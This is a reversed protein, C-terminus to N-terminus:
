GSTRSAVFAKFIAPRFGIFFYGGIADKKETPLDSIRPETTPNGDSDLKSPVEQGVKWGKGLSVSQYRTAGLGLIFGSPFDVGFGLFFESPSSSIETGLMVMPAPGRKPDFNDAGQQNLYISLFAAGEFKTTDRNSERVHHTVNNSSDLSSDVTFGRNDGRWSGIMGLSINFHHFARDEFRVSAITSAEVNSLDASPPENRLGEPTIPKREVGITYRTSVQAMLFTQELLPEPHSAMIGEWRNVVQRSKGLNEKLAQIMAQLKEIEDKLGSRFATAEAAPDALKDQLDRDVLAALLDDCRGNLADLKTIHNGSQTKFDAVQTKIKTPWQTCSTPQEAFLSSATTNVDGNLANVVTREKNLDKRIDWFTQLLAKDEDKQADFGKGQRSTESLAVMQAGSAAQSDPAVGVISFNEQLLETSTTKVSYQFNILDAPCVRVTVVAGPRAVAVHPNDVKGSLGNVQILCGSACDRSCVTACDDAALLPGALSLCM